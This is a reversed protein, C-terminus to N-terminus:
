SMATKACSVIRSSSCSSRTSPQSIASQGASCSFASPRATSSSSERCMVKKSHCSSSIRSVWRCCLSGNKYSTNYLLKLEASSTIRMPRRQFIFKSLGCWTTTTSNSRGKGPSLFSWSSASSSLSHIRTSDARNTCGIKISSRICNTTSKSSFRVGGRLWLSSACIMASATALTLCSKGFM